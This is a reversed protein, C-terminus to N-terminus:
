LTNLATIIKEYDLWGFVGTSDDTDHEGNEEFVGIVGWEKIQKFNAWHDGPTFVAVEFSNYGSVDDLDVRPSSYFYYGAVISLKFKGSQAPIIARFGAGTPHTIFQENFETRTM